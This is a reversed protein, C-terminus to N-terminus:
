SYYYYYYILFSVLFWNPKLFLGIHYNEGGVGVIQFNILTNETHYKVNYVSRFTVTFIHKSSM